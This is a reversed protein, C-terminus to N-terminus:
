FHCDFIAQNLYTFSVSRSEIQELAFFGATASQRTPDRIIRASVFCSEVPRPM